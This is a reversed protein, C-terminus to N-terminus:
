GPPWGLARGGLLHVHLHDVSQGGDAGCNVVVRYGNGLGEESAIRRAVLLLEGLLEAHGASADDLSALHERPVVLVHTPAKPSIDRFAIVRRDEHVIKSPIKGAAVDCFICGM